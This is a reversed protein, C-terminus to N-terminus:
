RNSKSFWAIKCKSCFSISDKNQKCNGNFNGRHGFIARPERCLKHVIFFNQILYALFQLIVSMTWILWSGIFLHFCQVYFPEYNESKWKINFWKTWPFNGGVKPAALKRRLKERNKPGRFPAHVSCDTRPFNHFYTQFPSGNDASQRM